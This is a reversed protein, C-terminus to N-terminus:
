IVDHQEEYRCKQIEFVRELIPNPSLGTREGETDLMDWADDHENYSMSINIGDMVIGSLKKHWVSSRIVCLGSFDINPFLSLIREEDVVPHRQPIIEILWSGILLTVDKCDTIDGLLLLKVIFGESLLRKKRDSNILLLRATEIESLQEESYSLSEQTTVNLQDTWTGHARTFMVSAAADCYLEYDDLYDFRDRLISLPIIEQPFNM